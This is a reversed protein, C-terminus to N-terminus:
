PASTPTAGRDALYSLVQFVVSTVFVIVGILAIWDSKSMGPKSSSRKAKARQVIQVAPPVNSAVAHGPPTSLTFIVFVVLSTALALLTLDGVVDLLKSHYLIQNGLALATELTAESKSYKEVDQQMGDLMNTLRTNVYSMVISVFLTLISWPFVRLTSVPLVGFPPWRFKM